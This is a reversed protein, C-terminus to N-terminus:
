PRAAGVRQENYRKFIDIALIRPTRAYIRGYSEERTMKFPKRTVQTVADLLVKGGPGANRIVYEIRMRAYKKMGSTAVDVALAGAGYVNTIPAKKMYIYEIIKGEFVLDAQSKDEVVNFAPQRRGAFFEKIIGTVKGASVEQDASDNSLEEVYINWPGDSKVVQKWSHAEKAEAGPQASFCVALALVSSVLANSRKM